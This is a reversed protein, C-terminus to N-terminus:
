LPLQNGAMIIGFIAWLQKSPFSGISLGGKRRRRNWSMNNVWGISLGKRRNVATEVVSFTKFLCFKTM